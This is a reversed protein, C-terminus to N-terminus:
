FNFMYSFGILVWGARPNHGDNVPFTADSPVIDKLPDHDTFDDFIGGLMYGAKMHINLRGTEDSFLPYEYGMSFETLGSLHSNNISEGDLDGALPTLYSFGFLLGEFHLESNIKFYSINHKYKSNDSFDKINYSYSSYFLGFKVGLETTESMPYYVNIGGEPIPSFAIGNQRGIPTEVGSIAARFGANIGMSLPYNEQSKSVFGMVPILIMIYLIFKNM